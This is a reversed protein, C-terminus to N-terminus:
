GMDNARMARVSEQLASPLESLRREEGATRLATRIRDLVSFRGTLARSPMCACINLTKKPKKFVVQVTFVSVSDM